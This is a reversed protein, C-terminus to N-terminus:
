FNFGASLKITRPPNGGISYSSVERYVSPSDATRTNDAPNNNYDVYNRDNMANIIDVRFRIRTEDSIFKLPVYKTFALDLQRRGWRDGLGFVESGVITRQYPSASDLLSRQFTPSEIQFKASLTVGLPTDASGAVVFRHRPVVGSRLFPYDSVKPFDLLFYSSQDSNPRNDVAATFTYTADISWPSAASYAKTLKAYASDAKTELGNDGLIIAGYGAPAFSTDPGQPAGTSPSPAFFSGDPRRTGLLYVFGDKSVIRTYGVELEVPNFRGRLGLSFQDSYPVKLDNNIFRFERGGPASGTGLLQQRGAETLYVDNWPICTASPTCPNVTDAGQFLFQRRQFRGNALEQQLFDFQNRDYSRGYGGFVTFRGQEDLRYTFGLRPQWAGKFAKRNSGNSIYDNINYDASNLNPYNTPSVAAIDTASTVYNLFAPTREYDWRLGLNLTLRDTVDWDDQAYLGLQFNNSRIRPDLGGQAGFELSYPIEDNFGDAVPLTTDYRYLPNILNQELSNLRVWKAKAGVKITHNEFGTWTFDDQVTWGKQGKDQFGLGAGTRFLDFSSVNGNIRTTTRFQQGIGNEAPQPSWAVDEYSVRFDNIWKEESHQWRLMGRKEEVKTLTATSYAAIGNGIQRGSENRYKGTLEILDKDTPELDLKGFYLDQRFDSNYSGFIDRYQAPLSAVATGNGPLIDIPVQRRKGEYSVFFHAVDKVIPGGLAVGFQKDESAVKAIKNPFIETPRRERLNQNTFDFFGEGHFENTGSKTGAIVAVSGVQDLEAKYNSSLVQYEGIALQPFPNGPSSDQGTLGGRLVYDKQSVGDIFVNVSNTGQAGGQIRSSGDASEIFRVGPALDAFALFNRSNQPLQEILRPTINIGVQGGSLSRIRSGTVIIDGEQAEAPPPATEGATNDAPSPQAPAPATTLDLDLGANQGVRLTFQDSNRTGKQLRIELRYAGARLSPFNYSGDAGPVVTRRFGSGVEVLTVDQIPNDPATRIVGRLAAQGAQAAAPASWTVATGLGALMTAGVLALRFANRKM